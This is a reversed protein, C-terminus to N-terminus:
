CPRLPSSLIVGVLLAVRGAAEVGMVPTQAVVVVLLEVTQIESNRIIRQTM